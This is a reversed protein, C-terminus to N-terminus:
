KVVKTIDWSQLKDDFIVGRPASYKNIDLTEYWYLGDAPINEHQCYLSVILDKHESGTAAKFKDTVIYDNANVSLTGTEIADDYSMGIMDLEDSLEDTDSTEIFVTDDLEDDYFYIRYVANREMYGKKVGWNFLQEYQDKSIELMNIFKHGSKSVKYVDGTTLGKNIKMWADPETSISLGRGEHSNNRRFSIDLKGVHYLQGKVQTTPLKFGSEVSEILNLIDRIKM